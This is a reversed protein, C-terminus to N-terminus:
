SSQRNRADPFAPTPTASHDRLRLQTAALERELAEIRRGRSRLERRGRRGTIWAALGGIAAGILLCLFMLVYLPIDALYPLPWLAVEVRERNSIAFLVLLLAVVLLIARYLIRM